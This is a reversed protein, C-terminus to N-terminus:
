RQLHQKGFTVVCFRLWSQGAFACGSVWFLTALALCLSHSPGAKPDARQEWSPHQHQGGASGPSCSSLSPKRQSGELALYLFFHHTSCSVAPAQWSYPLPVQSGDGCPPSLHQWLGSPAWSSVLSYIAKRSLGAGSCQM